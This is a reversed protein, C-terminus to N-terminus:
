FILPNTFIIRWFLVCFLIGVGLETTDYAPIYKVIDSTGFGTENSYTSSGSPVNVLRGQRDYYYESEVGKLGGLAALREALPLSIIKHEKKM